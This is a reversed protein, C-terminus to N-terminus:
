AGRVEDSGRRAGEAAWARRWPRRRRSRSCHPAAVWARAARAVKARRVSSRRGSARGAVERARVENQQSKAIGCVKVTKNEIQMKSISLLTVSNQLPKKFSM